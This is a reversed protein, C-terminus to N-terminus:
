KEEQQFPIVMIQIQSIVNSHIVKFACGFFAVKKIEVVLIVVADIQRILSLYGKRSPFGFKDLIIFNYLFQKVDFRGDLHLGIGEGFGFSLMGRAWVYREALFVHEDMKEVLLFALVLFYQAFVSDGLIALKRLCLRKNGFHLQLTVQWM